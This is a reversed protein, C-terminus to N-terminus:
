GCLAYVAGFAHSAVEFFGQAVRETDTPDDTMPLDGERLGNALPELAASCRALVELLYAWDVAPAAYEGAALQDLIASKTEQPTRAGWAQAVARVSEACVDAYLGLQESAVEEEGASRGGEIRDLAVRSAIALTEQVRAFWTGLSAGPDVLYREEAEALGRVVAVRAAQGRGESLGEPGGCGEEAGWEARV